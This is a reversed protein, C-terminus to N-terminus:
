LLRWSKSRDTPPRNCHQLPRGATSLRALATPGADVAARPHDTRPRGRVAATSWRGVVRTPHDVMPRGGHQRPRDFLPQNRHNLPRHTTSLMTLAASGPDVALSMRTFAGIKCTYTTYNHTHSSNHTMAPMYVRTSQLAHACKHICTRSGIRTNNSVFLLVHTASARAPPCHRDANGFARMHNLCTSSSSTRLRILQLQLTAAVSTSSAAINESESGSHSPVATSCAADCAACLPPRTAVCAASDHTAYMFETVSDDRAFNPLCARGKNTIDIHEPIPVWM